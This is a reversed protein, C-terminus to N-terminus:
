AQLEKTIGSWSGALEDRTGEFTNIDIGSGGIGPVGHPKPGIGDGTFQWLWWKSFGDPVRATPGYQALWLRHSVLYDRDDPNLDGITEKLRNGSYIAAKRGMTTELQRLWDVAQHITMNSLRNDEYDLVMLTNDDPQSKDLFWGVQSPIDDGTNFHYAGWLLGNAAAMQRHRAYDPDAYARGQSAKHIVGWIGSRAVAGLDRVDNHHSIDIVRASISM